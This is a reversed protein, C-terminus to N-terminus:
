FMLKIKQVDGLANEENGKYIYIERKEKWWGPLPKRWIDPSREENVNSFIDSFDDENM